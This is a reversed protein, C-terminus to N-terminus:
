LNISVDGVPVSICLQIEQDPDGHLDGTRVNRTRGSTKVKTCTFCIGMRCGFEPTLGASEAQELLTAGTNESRVGAAEFSTSGSVDGAGAAVVTPAFQETHLREDLGNAEFLATVSKTLGPPGCLYTQAQTHWTRRSQLWNGGTPWM